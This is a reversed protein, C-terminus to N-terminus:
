STLYTVLKDPDKYELFFNAFVDQPIMRYNLRTVVWRGCTNIGKKKKQLRYENYIVTYKSYYLLSTLHPYWENNLKRFYNPIFKLEDDPKYGYSDFHEVTNKNVKFICVWHGYNQKTEYLLVLAGYKGLAEDLNDYKTLEPYTMLNSKYNIMQLIDYNSLAIEM